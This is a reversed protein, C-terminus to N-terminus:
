EEWTRIKGGTAMNLKSAHKVAEKANLGLWMASRAFHQGSGSALKDTKNYRCFPFTCDEIEYAWKEGIIIGSVNVNDPAEFETTRDTCLWEVFSDYYCYTGALAAVLLKDGYVYAERLSLNYMKIANDSAINGSGTVRSDCALMKGDYAITTM